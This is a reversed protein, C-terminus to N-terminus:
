RGMQSWVAIMMAVGAAVVVLVVVALGNVVLGAGAQGPRSTEGRKAKLAERLGLAHGVLMAVPVLLPLLRPHFHVYQKAANILVYAAVGGLLTFVAFSVSRAAARDAAAVEEAQMDLPM